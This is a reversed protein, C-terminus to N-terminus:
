SITVELDEGLNALTAIALDVKRRLLICALYAGQLDHALLQEELHVFNSVDESLTVNKCVSLAVPEDAQEVSKLIVSADVKCHYTGSM